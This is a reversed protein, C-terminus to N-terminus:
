GQLLSKWKTFQPDLCFFDQPLELAVPNELCEALSQGDNVFRYGPEGFFPHLNMTNETGTCITPLGFWTTEFSTGTSNACYAVDLSECLTLVPQASIEVEFRIGLEQLIGEVPLFPHPKIVVKKYKKLGGLEEAKKLLKLQFYTDSKLVGTVVLLSRDRDPLPKSFIKFKQDLSQYRTAEGISVWEKPTDAEMMLSYSGSGNVILKDPRSWSKRLNPVYRRPDSYVRLDSRRLYSHQYGITQGKGGRQWASVLAQEWAMGEFLYLGWPEAPLAQAMKRFLEILLITDIADKGIFSTKWEEALLPYFQLKSGKFCFWEKPAKLLLIKIAGKLWGWVARSVVAPTVFDEIVYFRYKGRYKQNCQDRFHLTEQYTCQKSDSYYWVWNIPGPYSDFVTHLKEWYTSWYEGNKFKQMDVNPFYSVITPGVPVDQSPKALGHKWCPLYRKKFRYTLTVLAQLLHPLKKFLVLPSRTAEQVNGTSSADQVAFSHGQARCWNSLIQKLLPNAGEYILGECHKEKYLLELARLKFLEFIADSKYPSKEAIRSSEYLSPGSADYMLYQTLLKGGVKKQGLEFTWAFYDARIQNFRDEVLQPISYVGEAQTRQAWFALISESGTEVSTEANISDILRLKKKMM